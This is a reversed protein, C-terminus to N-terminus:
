TDPVGASHALRGDTPSGSRFRLIRAPVGAAVAGAPLDRSVVAGAGVQVGDGIRVGPLIVAGIGIDCGAGIEVAGFKLPASTIPTPYPTEEHVSTLIATRPGLGTQPGVAIGGASNLYCDPGVWVGDALTIRGRPDGALIARHGVYVGRGLEVHGPCFILVGEEITTGPGLSSLDEPSFSGDGNSTRAM